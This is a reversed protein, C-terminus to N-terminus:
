EVMKYFIEEFKRNTKELILMIADLEPQLKNNEWRNYHSRDVGLFEAFLTQNKYGMQLRIDLLRNRVGM